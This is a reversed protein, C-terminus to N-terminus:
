RRGDDLIDCSEAVGPIPALTKPDHAYLGEFISWLVRGEPVGEAQAPDLTRVETNNCITYDAPPLSNRDLWLWVGLLLVLFALIPWWRVLTIRVLPMWLILSFALKQQSKMIVLTKMLAFLGSILSLKLM